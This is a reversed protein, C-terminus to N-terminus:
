STYGMGGDDGYALDLSDAANGVYGVVQPDAPAAYAKKGTESSM